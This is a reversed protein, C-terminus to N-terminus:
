KAYWFETKHNNVTVPKAIGYGEKRVKTLIETVVAATYNKGLVKNTIDTRSIGKDAARRLARIVRDSLRDGTLVGFIWKASRECYDVVAEAARQHEIRITDSNDAIAYILSLRVVHPASRALIKGFVGKQNDEKDREEYYAKWRKGAEGDRLVRYQGDRADRSLNDMAAKIPELLRDEDRDWDIVHPEAITGTKKSAVFMFRNLFGNAADTTGVTKQRLEERTIHAILSGHPSSAIEKANKAANQLHDPSDWLERLVIAATNDKRGAVSLVQSFEEETILLRKDEVGKDELIPKEGYEERERKSRPERHKPDRMAHIIGEGSQIGKLQCSKSWFLDLHKFLRRVAATSTGKRGLYTDGVLALFENCFHEREGAFVFPGRGIMSGFAVLIQTVLAERSAESQSAIALAIKGLPGHFAADAMPAPFPEQDTDSYERDLLEQTVEPESNAAPETELKAEWGKYSSPGVAWALLAQKVGNRYAGPLRSLQSPSHRGNDLYPFSAAFEYVKKVREKFEKEDRADIAVTGHISKGASDYIAPIPLGSSQLWAFAEEKIRKKDAETAGKPPDSELLTRKFKAVNANTRIGEGTGAINLPNICYWVGNPASFNEPLAEYIAEWEHLPRSDVVSPNGDSGEFALCVIDDLAFLRKLFEIPDTVSLDDPLTKRSGDHAHPKIPEPKNTPRYTSGTSASAGHQFKDRCYKDIIGPQVSEAWDRATNTHRDACSNHSCNFIPEGNYFGVFTDTKTTKKGHSSEWPCTVYHKDADGTGSIYLGLDRFVGALDLTKFDGTYTSM